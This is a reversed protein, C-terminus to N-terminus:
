NGTSGFGGGGRQTDNLEDALMLEYAPLPAFRIQAIRDGVQYLRAYAHREMMTINYEDADPNGNYSFGAKIMQPLYRFRAQWEGRYDSDIIAISNCLALDTNSISSRPYIYGAWGAPIETAFGLGYKIYGQDIFRSVAVVDFCADTDHARVPLKADPHLLKFKIQPHIM